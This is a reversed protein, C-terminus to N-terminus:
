AAGVRRSRLMLFLATGFSALASLALGVFHALYGRVAPDLVYGWLLTLAALVLFYGLWRARPQRSGLLAATILLLCSEVALWVVLGAVRTPQNAADASGAGRTPGGGAWEVSLVGVVMFVTWLAIWLHDSGHARRREALAAISRDM